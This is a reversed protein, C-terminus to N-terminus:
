YTFLEKCALPWNQKRSLSKQSLLFCNFYSSLEYKPSTSQLWFQTESICDSLSYSIDSLGDQMIKLNTSLVETIHIIEQIAQCLILSLLSWMQEHSSCNMLFVNPNHSPVLHIQPTAPFGPLFWGNHDQCKSVKIQILAPIEFTSASSPMCYIMVLGSLSWTRYHHYFM